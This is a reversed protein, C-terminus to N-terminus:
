RGPTFSRVTFGWEDDTASRSPDFSGHTPCGYVDDYDVSYGDAGTMDEIRSFLEEVTTPTTSFRGGRAVVSKTRIPRGDRVSITM